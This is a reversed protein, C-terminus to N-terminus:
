PQSKAKARKRVSFVISCSKQQLSSPCCCTLVNEKGFPNSDSIGPNIKHIM